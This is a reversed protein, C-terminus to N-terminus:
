SCYGFDTGSAATAETMQIIRSSVSLVVHHNWQTALHIISPSSLLTEDQGPSQNNSCICSHMSRIYHSLNFKGHYELFSTESRGWKLYSHSKLTWMTHVNLTDRFIICTLARVVRIGENPVGNLLHTLSSRAFSINIDVIWKSM